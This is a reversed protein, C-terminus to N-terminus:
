HILIYSTTEFHKVFQLQHAKMMVIEIWQSEGLLKTWDLYSALSKATEM